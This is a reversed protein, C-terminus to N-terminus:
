YMPRARASAMSKRIETMKKHDTYFLLAVQWRTEMGIWKAAQHWMKSKHLTGQLCIGVIRNGWAGASVQVLVVKVESSLMWNIKTVSCLPVKYYLSCVTVWCPPLPANCHLRGREEARNLLVWCYWSGNEHSLRIETSHSSFIFFGMERYEAPEQECFGQKVNRSFLARPCLVYQVRM